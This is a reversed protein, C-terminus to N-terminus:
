PATDLVAGECFLKVAGNEYVASLGTIEEPESVSIVREKGNGEYSLRYQYARDGYDATM